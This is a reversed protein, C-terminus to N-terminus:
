EDVTEVETDPVFIWKGHIVVLEAQLMRRYVGLTASSAEAEHKYNNLMLLDGNEMRLATILGDQEFEGAPIFSVKQRLLERESENM